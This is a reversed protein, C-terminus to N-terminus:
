KKQTIDIPPKQNEDKGGALLSRVSSIAAPALLMGVIGYLKLGAYMGILTAAPHLGITGGVIKPEAIQRIVTVTAWLILLGLGRSFDHSFFSLLSWPILVTGVGLVPLLDLLSILLALLFAYRAGIISLGAFVEFFTLAMLLTYAKFYRTAMSRTKSKIQLLRARAGDPLIGVISQNINDFDLAFYFSAITSVVVFIIISPLTKVVAAAISTLSAGLDSALGKLFSVLMEELRDGVLSLKEHSKFERILPLYAGGDEFRAVLSSINQTLASDESTLGSIFNEAESLFRTVAWFLIGGVSFFLLILVLASCLKKPIKLTACIRKSILNTLWAMVWAAFFPTFAALIYKGLLFLALLALAACIGISALRQWDTKIVAM